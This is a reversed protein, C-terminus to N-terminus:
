VVAPKGINSQNPAIWYKPKALHHLILPAAGISGIDSVLMQPVWLFMHVTQLM